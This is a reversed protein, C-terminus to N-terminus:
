AEKQEQNVIVCNSTITLGIVSCAHEISCREVKVPDIIGKKILNCFEHKRADYGFSNRDRIRDEECEYFVTPYWSNLKDVVVDYSKGTNEVITKLPLKCANIVVQVGAIEDETLDKFTEKELDTAAYFLATGGGPVIGEQVAAQTANLADEVRDKKEFIEIETSGGVKIVAIGGALKALRKKINNRRLDDLTTDNQFLNKLKAVRDNILTKTDESGNGVITTNNRTVVVKKCSGLHDLTVNQLSLESSSDLVTGGTVLAIDQLIDSRNEGYSPAKVACSFLVGKMKNVLLAHLVEGEIEDGIVLLPRNANVVLELIPVIEKLQTIKKNTILIYPEQLECSLKEQNTVFYPSTYGTDFQMGEVVELTTNVSKAPEITIIGDEGVKSIAESLLEGIKRDGNASITGVNIIDENDRIKISNKSLWEVIKESAIDMGRKIEISSRGTAIMKMAQQFLGYGLVTATTTGDGALENTKSAIEKLLEAGISPLKEKLNISKAVTVGDKTILPASIGNDIIVNHGSPGMTSKVAKFLIEAGKRLEERAEEEFFVEQYVKSM